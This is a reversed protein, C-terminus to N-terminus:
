VPLYQHDELNVWFGLHPLPGGGVRQCHSRYRNIVSAGIIRDIWM